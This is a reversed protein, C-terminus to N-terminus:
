LGGAPDDGVLEGGLTFGGLEECDIMLDALGAFDGRSGGEFGDEEGAGFDLVGGEVVIAHDALSIEVNAVGDFDFFGSFDDGLEDGYDDVFAGIIGLGNERWGVAWCAIRGELDVRGLGEFVWGEFGGASTHVWLARGLDTLFEDPKNAAALHVDIREAFGGDVADAGRVYGEIVECVDEGEFVM